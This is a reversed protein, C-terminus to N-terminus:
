SSSGLRERKWEEYLRQEAIEKRVQEEQLMRHREYELQRQLDRDKEVEREELCNARARQDRRSGLVGGLVAGGVTAAGRGKGRGFLSGTAGGIVAGGLTGGVKDCAQALIPSVSADTMLIGAVLVGTALGGYIRSKNLGKKM